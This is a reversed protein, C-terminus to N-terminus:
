QEQGDFTRKIKKIENGLMDYIIINIKLFNSSQNHEFYFNCNSVVPNPLCQFNKISLFNGDIIYFTISKESSNNFSDWAKVNVTYEGDELSFFQYEIIGSRYNDLSSTYFDNLIVPPGGNLTATIQHGIGNLTTNIGSEDFLDVILMPNESSLGGDVFNRNDIYLDIQPGQNDTAFNSEIGGIVLSEDYGKADTLTNTTDFAYMSIKANGFLYSIDGPVTFKFNFDGNVVTCNGNFILSSQDRYPM